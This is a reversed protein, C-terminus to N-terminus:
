ACPAQPSVWFDTECKRALAGFLLADLDCVATIRLALAARLSLGLRARQREASQRILVDLTVRLRMLCTPLVVLQQNVGM